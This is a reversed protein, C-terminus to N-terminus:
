RFLVVVPNVWSSMPVSTLIAIIPIVYVFVIDLSSVRCSVRACACERASVRRCRVSRVNPQVSFQCGVHLPLKAPRNGASCWCAFVCVCLGVCVHVARTCRRALLHVSYRGRLCSTVSQSLLCASSYFPSCANRQARVCAVCTCSCLCGRLCVGTRAGKEDHYPKLVIHAVAAALCTFTALLQRVVPITTAFTALFSLILRQGAGGYLRM